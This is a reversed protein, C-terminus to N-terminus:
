VWRKMLQPTNRFVYKWLHRAMRKASVVQGVCYTSKSYILEKNDENDYRFQYLQDISTSRIHDRGFKFKVFCLRFTYCHPSRGPQKSIKM